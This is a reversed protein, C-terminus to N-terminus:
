PAVMIEGVMETNPENKGVQSSKAKSPTIKAKTTRAM